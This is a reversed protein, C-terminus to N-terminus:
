NYIRVAAAVLRYERQPGDVQQLDAGTDEAYHRAEEETLTKVRFTGHLAVRAGATNTPIFFSYDQFTIRAPPIGPGADLMFFCGKKQCVQRITGATTVRQGDYVAAAAILSDLPLRAAQEDFRSGFDRYADTQAVPDSLQIVGPKNDQARLSGTLLLVTFFSLLSSYLISKMFNKYM